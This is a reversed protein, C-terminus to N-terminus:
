DLVDFGPVFRITKLAQIQVLEGWKTLLKSVSAPPVRYEFALVVLSGNGAARLLDKECTTLEELHTDDKWVVDFGNRQLAKIFHTKGSDQVGFLAIIM